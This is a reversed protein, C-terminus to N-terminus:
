SPFIDSIHILTEYFWFFFKPFKLEQRMWVIDCAIHIICNTVDGDTDDCTQVAVKVVCMCAHVCVCVCACAVNLNCSSSGAGFEIFAMRAVAFPSTDPEILTYQNLSRVKHCTNCHWQM